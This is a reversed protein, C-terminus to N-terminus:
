LSRRLLSRPSHQPLVLASVATLGRVGRRASLGLRPSLARTRVPARGATFLGARSRAPARAREFPLFDEGRPGRCNLGSNALSRAHALACLRGGGGSRETPPRASQQATGAEGWARARPTLVERRASLSPSPGGFPLLLCVPSSSLSFGGERLSSRPLRTPTQLLCAEM